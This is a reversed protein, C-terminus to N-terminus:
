IDLRNFIRNPLHRLAMMIFKWKGPVYAVSRPSRIAQVIQRAVDQVPALKEGKEKLRATMPTDTPGPKILVIRVGTRYFRHQLGESYRTVLSKAAGYVYNSKRGRDGAVSSIIALTGHNQRELHRVFSEAFLVPSVGNTILAENGIEPDDQCRCQDPLNGHAILIIDMSGESAIKDVAAKILDPRSFDCEVTSIVVTASRTKLDAAVRKLREANRGILVLELKGDTQLWLRACHEAM